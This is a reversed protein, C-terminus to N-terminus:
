VYIDKVGEEEFIVYIGFDIKYEFVFFNDIVIFFIDKLFEWYLVRWGEEGVFFVDFFYIGDNM